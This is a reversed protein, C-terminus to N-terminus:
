TLYAVDNQVNKFISSSFSRDFRVYESFVSCYIINESIKTPGARGGPGYRFRATPLRSLDQKSGRVKLLEIFYYYIDIYKYIYICRYIFVWCIYIYENM